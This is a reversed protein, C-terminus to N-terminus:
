ADEENDGLLRLIFDRFFSQSTLAEIAVFHMDGHIPHDEVGVKGALRYDLNTVTMYLERLLGTPRMDFSKCTVDELLQMQYSEWDFFGQDTQLSHGTTTQTAADVVKKAIRFLQSDWVAHLDSLYDVREHLDKASAVLGPIMETINPLYAQPSPVGHMRGTHTRLLFQTSGVAFPNMGVLVLANTFPLADSLESWTQSTYTFGHIGSVEMHQAAIASVANLREVMGATPDSGKEADWWGESYEWVVKCVSFNEGRFALSAFDALETDRPVWLQLRLSDLRMPDALVPVLGVIIRNDFLLSQILADRCIRTDFPAILVFVADERSMVPFITALHNSYALLETFAQRETQASKKLEVIGIGTDGPFAALFDARITSNAQQELPVEMGVLEMSLLKEYANSLRSITRNRILSQATLDSLDDKFSVEAPLASNELMSAFDDRRSWIYKQIESETFNM